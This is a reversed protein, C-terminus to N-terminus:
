VRTSAPYFVEVTARRTTPPSSFPVWHRSIYSSYHINRPSVFAPVQGVLNPPRSDSVTFYPWSDRPVRVRSHSCHRPGAAITFSLGTREDSLINCLVIVPLTWNFFFVPRPNCPTQRWSSSIPPLGGTTFHSQTRDTCLLATCHLSNIPSLSNTVPNSRHLQCSLCPTM